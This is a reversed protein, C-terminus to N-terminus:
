KLWMPIPTPPRSSPRKLLDYSLEGKKNTVHTVIAAYDANNATALHEIGRGHGLVGGAGQEVVSIPRPTTCRKPM